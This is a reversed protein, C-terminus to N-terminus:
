HSFGLLALAEARDLATLELALLREVEDEMETWAGQGKRSMVVRFRGDVQDRAEKAVGLYAEFHAIAADWEKLRERSLGANYRASLAREDNPFHILFLEFAGASEQYNQGRFAQRGEEFLVEPDLTNVRYEGGGDSAHFVLPDMQIVRQCGGFFSVSLVCVLIWDRSMKLNM